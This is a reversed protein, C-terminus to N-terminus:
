KSPPSQNRLAKWFREEAENFRQFLKELHDLMKKVDEKPVGAGAASSSAPQAAVAKLSQVATDLAGAAQAFSRSADYLDDTELEKDRPTYLVRWPSRRVEIMALKLQDTSLQANALAREIVPRQGAVLVRIEKSSDRLDTLATDAKELAETVQKMTKDRATQTIAEINDISKRVAPDKDNVLSEVKGATRQAAAGADEASKTFRDVSDFWPGSREKAGAIVGKADALAERGDKLGAKLDESAEKANAVVPKADEALEKLRALLGPVDNGSLKAVNRLIHRFQARQEDEIGLSRMLMSGGAAGPIADRPGAYSLARSTAPMTATRGGAPTGALMALFEGDDEVPLADDPITGKPDYREGEGVSRINLKTGTSLLPPMLEIRANWHIDYEAPISCMVVKGLVTLKGGDRASPSPHDEIKTVVGVPQDGLTVAAGTKLGQLGQALPFYVRILQRNQFYGSTDSLIVVVLLVLALGFFVFIGAKVNDRETM